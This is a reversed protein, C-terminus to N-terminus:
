LLEDWEKRVNAAEEEDKQSRVLLAEFVKEAEDADRRAEGTVSSQSGGRHPSDARGGEVLRHYASSNGGRM